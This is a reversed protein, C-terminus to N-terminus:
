PDLPARASWLAGLNSREACDLYNTCSINLRTTLSGATGSCPVISGFRPPRGDSTSFGGGSRNDPRSREITRLGELQGAPEHDTCRKKIIRDDADETPEQCRSPLITRHVGEDGIERRLDEAKNQGETQRQQDPDFPLLVFRVPDASDAGKGDDPEAAIDEDRGKRLGDDGEREPQYHGSRQYCKRVPVEEFFVFGAESGLDGDQEGEGEAPTGGFAHVPEGDGGADDCDDEELLLM